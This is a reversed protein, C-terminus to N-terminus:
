AGLLVGVAFGILGSAVGIFMLELGAVWWKGVMLRAKLAGSAFLVFATLLVAGAMAQPITILPVAFFTVLPVISGLIASAFVVVADKGPNLNKYASLGLEEDMMVKLWTKKDSCIRDVVMKLEKGGFGKKRYILEVEMKEIEPINEIEWKEREVESEYFEKSAKSSTYAVAGMSISEAFLAALGAVLVIRVDNSAIAVGLAIGLVNVLGDQGGLIMNKILSAKSDQNELEKRHAAFSERIRKRGGANLKGKKM